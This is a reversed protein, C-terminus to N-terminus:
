CEDKSGGTEQVHHDVTRLFRSLFMIVRKESKAKGLGKTICSTKRNTTRSAFGSTFTKETNSVSTLLNVGIEQDKVNPVTASPTSLVACHSTFWFNTMAHLRGITVQNLTLVANFWFFSYWLVVCYAEGCFVTWFDDDCFTGVYGAGEGEWCSPLPDGIALTCTEDTYYQWIARYRADVPPAVASNEQAWGISVAVTVALYLLLVLSLTIVFAM